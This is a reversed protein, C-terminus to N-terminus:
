AWGMAVAAVVVLGICPLVVATGMRTGQAGALTGWKRVLVLVAEEVPCCLLHLEVTERGEEEVVQLMDVGPVEVMRGDPPRPRRAQGM